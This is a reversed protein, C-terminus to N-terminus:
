AAEVVPRGWYAAPGFLGEWTKLQKQPASLHVGYHAAIRKWAWGEARMRAVNFREHIPMKAASARGRAIALGHSTGGHLLGIKSKGRLMAARTGVRLHDERMCHTSGCTSYVVQGSSLPRGALEILLRRASYRKYDWMVIPTHKCAGAWILCDDRHRVHTRLYALMEEATIIRHGGRSPAAPSQDIM